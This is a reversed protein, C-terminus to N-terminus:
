QITGRNVLDNKESTDWLFGARNPKEGIQESKGMVRGDGFLDKEARARIEQLEETDNNADLMEELYGCYKAVDAFTVNPPTQRATWAVPYAERLERRLTTMQPEFAGRLDDALLLITAVVHDGPWCNQTKERSEHICISEWDGDRFDYWQVTFDMMTSFAHMLTGIVLHEQMGNDGDFDIENFRKAMLNAAASRYNVTIRYRTGSSGTVRIAFNDADYSRDKDGVDSITGGVCNLVASILELSRNHPELGECRFNNLIWEKKENNNENNEM